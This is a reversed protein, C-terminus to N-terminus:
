SVRADGMVCPYPNINGYTEIEIAQVTLHVVGTVDLSDLTLHEGRKTTGTAIERSDATVKWDCVNPGYEERAADWIGLTASFTHYDAGLVYELKRPSYTGMPSNTPISALVISTPFHQGDIDVAQRRDINNSGIGGPDLPGSQDDLYVVPPAIPEMASSSTSGVLSEVPLQQQITAGTRTSNTGSASFDHFFTYALGLVAVVGAIVTWRAVSRHDPEWSM